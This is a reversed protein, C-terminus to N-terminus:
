EKKDKILNIFEPFDYGKSVDYEWVEIEDKKSKLEFNNNKFFEMAPKNKKTPIFEGILTDANNEEAKELIYAILTEEVKRGIIRCSLLFTDIRWTESGKEVIALGTLGNDGFKDEVKIPIIFFNDNKLFDRIDEELYRRTTMNFQNTKQTLQSIRPISFDNVREITVTINMARLYETIDTVQKKLEHRKRQDAYMRGKRLDEDTIQLTNFDDIEMIAKLYMSPDEPLDVVLVEPLADKIMERNMKDDDIFVLSDLGINIEEAVARMNSIKDDWNIQMAAFHNEKLVMYPHKRFVELADDMNNKSNVALIIGRNFLSLIYKQFELFPRGEPTPGLKIGELGEEGVVGGWLTNDLDLVICKRNLSLIPKIYSLYTDCLDPIHQLNIKIDGLYYMKYDLINDKGIKSCFSNYDFLFVQSDAKIIDRINRNLEEISEMFGFESKNEMIGFPSHYPVKFNHFLIKSSSNEKIRNILMQIERAREGVWVKRQEDTIDYPLYYHDGLIAMIDIFVITLDPKFNYFGSDENLIEQFYQNYDGIYIEPQIGLECCKVLLTEEIGNITFSSLIAIKISKESQLNGDEIEKKIKKSLRFYDAIGLDGASSIMERIKLLSSDM